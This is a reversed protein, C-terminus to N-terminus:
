TSAIGNGMNESRHVAGMDKGSTIERNVVRLKKATLQAALDITQTAQPPTALPHPLPVMSLGLLACGALLCNLGVHM